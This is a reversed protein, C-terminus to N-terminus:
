IRAPTANLGSSIGGFPGTDKPQPTPITGGGFDCHDGSQDNTCNPVSFEGPLLDALGSIVRRVAGDKSVVIVEDGMALNPPLNAQGDFFFTKDTGDALKIRLQESGTPPELTGADIVVTVTNGNQDLYEFQGGILSKLDPLLSGLGAINPLVGGSSSQPVATPRLGLTVKVDTKPNDPHAVGDKVVSLTVQDGPLHNAIIDALVNFSEISEGDIAVIHDGTKLGAEAAPAGSVVDTIDVGGNAGTTGSVGLWARGLTANPTPTPSGGSAPQAELTVTIDTKDGDPHRVGDKVVTLTMQDGVRHSTVIAALSPIDNVAEGDADLILDGTALGAKSAPSGDAVSNVAVGKGTSIPGGTIGLYPAGPAPSVQPVPTPTTPRPQLTVKVDTPTATGGGKIVSLTVEDGAAHSTVESALTQVDSVDKGDISLIVDGNQLGAQDAPSGGSVNTIAVGKGGSAPDGSIGLWVQAPAPSAGASRTPTLTINASAHGNDDSGKAVVIVVGAILAGVAIVIPLVGALKFLQQKM